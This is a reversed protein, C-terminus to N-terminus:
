PRGEWWSACGAELLRSRWLDGPIWGARYRLREALRHVKQRDGTQWAALLNALIDGRRAM